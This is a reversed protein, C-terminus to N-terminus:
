DEREPVELGLADAAEYDIVLKGCDTIRVLEYWNTKGLLATLTPWGDVIEFKWRIIPEESGPGEYLYHKM